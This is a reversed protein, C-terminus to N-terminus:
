NGTESNMLAQSNDWFNQIPYQLNELVIKDVTLEVRKISQKRNLWRFKEHHDSTFDFSTIDEVKAYYCLNLFITKEKYMKMEGAYHVQDSTYSIPQELGCAYVLFLKKTPILINTYSQICQQAMELHDEDYMDRSYYTESFINWCDGVLASPFSPPLSKTILFEQKSNELIYVYRVIWYKFHIHTKLAKKLLNNNKM